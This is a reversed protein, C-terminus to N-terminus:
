PLGELCELMRDNLKVAERKIKVYNHADCKPINKYINLYAVVCFASRSVGEYCHIYVFEKRDLLDHILDVVKHAALMLDETTMKFTMPIRTHGCKAPARWPTEDEPTVSIVHTVGLSKWSSEYLGHYSGLYLNDIIQSYEPNLM